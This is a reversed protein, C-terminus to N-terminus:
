CGSLDKHMYRVIVNVLQNRIVIEVEAASCLQTVLKREASDIVKKVPCTSFTVQRKNQAYGNLIVSSAFLM